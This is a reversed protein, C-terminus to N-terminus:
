RDKGVFGEVYIIWKKEPDSIVDFVVRYVKVIEINTLSDKNVKLEKILADIYQTKKKLTAIEKHFDCYVCIKECFPVHIYLATLM